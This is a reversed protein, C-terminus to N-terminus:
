PDASALQSFRGLVTSGSRNTNIGCTRQRKCVSFKNGIFGKSFQSFMCFTMSFTAFATLETWLDPVIEPATSSTNPFLRRRRHAVRQFILKLIASDAAWNRQSVSPATKLSLYRRDRPSTARSFSNTSMMRGNSFMNKDRRFASYGVIRRHM